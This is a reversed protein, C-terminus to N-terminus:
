RPCRAFSQASLARWVSPASFIVPRFINMRMVAAMSATDATHHTYRARRKEEALRAEELRKREAEEAKRRENTLVTLEGDTLKYFTIFKDEM